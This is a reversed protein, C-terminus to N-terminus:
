LTYRKRKSKCYRRRAFGVAIVVALFVYTSPRRSLSSFFGNHDSGSPHNLELMSYRDLSAQHERRPAIEPKQDATINLIIVSSQDINSKAYFRLLFDITNAQDFEDPSDTKTTARCNPCLQASPFQVKPHQPDETIDKSLRQNVHNHM